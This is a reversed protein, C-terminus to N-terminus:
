HTVGKIFDNLQKEGIQRNQDCSNLMISYINQFVIKGMGNETESMYRLKQIRNEIRESHESNLIEFVNCLFFRLKIFFTAQAFTIQLSILPILTIKLNTSKTVSRHIDVPYLCMHKHGPYLFM